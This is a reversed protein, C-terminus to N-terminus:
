IRAHREMAKRYVEKYALASSEWSFDQEMCRRMLAAWVDRHHWLNIARRLTELLRGESLDHFKFGTGQQLHEDCDVVTEDLGGVAHVIPVTGYRMGSMHALGCPEYRSPALFMDSGAQIVHALREDYQPLVCMRGCFERSLRMLADEYRREGNGLIVYQTDLSLMGPVSAVIVDIGKQEVLRSITAVVPVDRRELGLTQQLFSKCVAKKHLDEKGYREPIFPDKEPNWEEYDVGNLVGYLDSSRERLVGELGFGFQETMIEERYKNSVTTIVDSFRIGGKLCNIMGFFELYEPTFYEWGLGLVHMDYRSFIGQYGINHITLVTAVGQLVPDEKHLTRLYVPILATEWDNCHIVEPLFGTVKISEIAAKCFFAFRECNDEYDGDPTGYVHDRLFYEDKEVLYAPVGGWGSELIQAEVVSSAIECDITGRYALPFGREEIGKYKPLILRADVGLRRLFRPLAGVVDGLGGVKAFPHAESSALLVRM